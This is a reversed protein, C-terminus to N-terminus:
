LDSQMCKRISEMHQRISQMYWLIRQMNSHDGQMMWQKRQCLCLVNLVLDDIYLKIYKYKFINKAKIRLGSVQNMQKLM